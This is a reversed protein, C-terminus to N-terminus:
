EYIAVKILFTNLTVVVSLSEMGAIGVIGAICIYILSFYLFEKCVIGYLPGQCLPEAVASARHSQSLGPWRILWPHLM